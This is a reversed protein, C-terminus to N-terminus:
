TLHASSDHRTITSVRCVLETFLEVKPVLTISIAIAALFTGIILRCYRSMLVVSQTVRPYQGGRRDSGFGLRAIGKLFFRRM